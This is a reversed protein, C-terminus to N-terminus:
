RSRRGAAWGRRRARSASRATAAAAALLLLWPSAGGGGASCGGDCEGHQYGDVTTSCYDVKTCIESSPASRQGGVGVATLSACWTQEPAIGPVGGELFVSPLLSRYRYSPSQGSQRLDIEYYATGEPQSADVRAQTYDTGWYCSDPDPAEFQLHSISFDDVVPNALPPASETGTTFEVLFETGSDSGYGTARLQYTTAPELPEDPVILRWNQISTITSSVLETGARLEVTFEEFASGFVVPQADIPVGASGNAPVTTIDIVVTCSAILVAASM